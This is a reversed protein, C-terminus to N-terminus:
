VRSFDPNNRKPPCCCVSFLKVMTLFGSVILLIFVFFLGPKHHGGMSHYRCIISSFAVVLVICPLWTYVFYERKVFIDLHWYMILVFTLISLNIISSVNDSLHFTFYQFIITWQGCTAVLCWIGYLPLVNLTLLRLLGIECSSLEVIDDNHNIDTNNNNNNNNNSYEPDNNNYKANSSAVDVWCIRYAIINILILMATLVIMVIGSEVMHHHTFLYIWVGNLVNIIIFLFWFIGPFLPTRNRRSFLQRCLLLYLVYIYWIILLIYIVDWVMFMWLAPTIQTMYKDTIQRETNTDKHKYNVYLDIGFTIVSIVALFLTVCYGLWSM